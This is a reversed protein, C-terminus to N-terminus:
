HRDRSGCDISEHSAKQARSVLIKQTGLRVNANYLFQNQPISTVPVCLQYLVLGVQGDM